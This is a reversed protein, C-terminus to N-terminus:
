DTPQGVSSAFSSCKGFGIASGKLSPKEWWAEYEEETGVFLLFIFMQASAVNLPILMSSKSKFELARGNTSTKRDLYCQATSLTCEHTVVTM